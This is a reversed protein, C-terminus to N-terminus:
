FSWGASVGAYGPGLEPALTIVELPKLRPRPAFLIADGANLAWLSVSVVLLVNFRTRWTEASSRLARDDYPLVSYRSFYHDYALYSVLTGAVCLGVGASWAWGAGPRGQWFQGWGPLALSRLLSARGLDRADVLPDYPKDRWDVRDVDTKLIEFKGHGTEVVLLREDQSLLKGRYVKNGVYVNVPAENRAPNEYVIDRIEAKKLTLKGFETQVVLTDKDQSVIQGTVVDGNKQVVRDATLPLAACLALLAPLAIRRM